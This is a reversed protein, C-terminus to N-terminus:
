AKKGLQASREAAAIVAETVIGSFGAKELVQLARATTGGPSTVMDCLEAPHKGSAQLLEASGLNIEYVQYDADTLTWGSQTATAEHNTIFMNSASFSGAFTYGAYYFSVNGNYALEEGTGEVVILRNAGGNRVINTENGKNNLYTDIQNEQKNYIGELRTKTCSLATTLTVAIMLIRAIRRM